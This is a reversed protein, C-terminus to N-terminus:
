TFTGHGEQGRKRYPITLLGLQPSKQFGALFFKLLHHGNPKLSLVTHHLLCLMFNVVKVTTFNVAGHCKSCQQHKVVKVELQALSEELGM